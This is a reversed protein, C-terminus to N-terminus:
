QCHSDEDRALCEKKETESEDLLMQLVSRSYGTGSHLGFEQKLYLLFDKMEQSEVLQSLELDGITILLQLPRQGSRGEHLSYTSYFLGMEEMLAENKAQDPFRSEIISLKRMIAWYHKESFFVM